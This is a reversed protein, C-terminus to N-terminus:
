YVIDLSAKIREQGSKNVVSLVPLVPWCSLLTEIPNGSLRLVALFKASLRLFQFIKVKLRLLTLIKASIRLLLWGM